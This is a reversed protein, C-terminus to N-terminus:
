YLITEGLRTIYQVLIHRTDTGAKQLQESLANLNKNHAVIKGSDLAIYEDPYKKQLIKYRTRIVEDSKQMMKILQLEEQM